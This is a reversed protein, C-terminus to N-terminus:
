GKLWKRIRWEAIVLAILCGFLSASATMLGNIGEQNIAPVNEITYTQIETHAQYKAKLMNEVDKVSTGETMYVM